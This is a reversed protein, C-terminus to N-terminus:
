GKGHVGDATDHREVLLDVILDRMHAMATLPGMGPMTQVRPCMPHTRGMAHLKETDYAMRKELVLVEDSLHRFMEASLPTLKAQTDEPERVGSTRCASIGHPLVMGYM